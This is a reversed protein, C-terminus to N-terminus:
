ERETETEGEVRVRERERKTKTEIHLKGEERNIVREDKKGEEVMRM